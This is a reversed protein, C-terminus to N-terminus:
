APGAPELSPQHYKADASESEDGRPRRRCAFTMLLEKERPLGDLTTEETALGRWAREENIELSEETEDESEEDQGSEDGPDTITPNRDEGQEWANVGGM